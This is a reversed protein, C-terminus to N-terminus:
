ESLISVPEWWEPMKELEDLIYDKTEEVTLSEVWKVSVVNGSEDRLQKYVKEVRQLFEPYEFITREEGRNKIRDICITVPTDMFVIADPDLLESGFLDHIREVDNPSEPNFQYGESSWIYRDCLVVMEKELAPIIVEKVHHLRDAMMLCLEVSPSLRDNQNLVLKRVQQGFGSGGPEKTTLVKYGAEALKEGVSYMASTKGSGDLGEFVIFKGKLDM